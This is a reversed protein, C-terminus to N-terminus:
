LRNFLQEVIIIIQKKTKDVTKAFFILAKKLASKETIM